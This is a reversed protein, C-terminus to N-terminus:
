LRPQLRVAKAPSGRGPPSSMSPYLWSLGLPAAPGSLPRQPGRLAEIRRLPPPSILVQSAWASLCRTRRRPTAAGSARARRDPSRPGRARAAPRAYPQTHQLKHDSSRAGRPGAPSGSSYATSSSSRAPTVRSCPSAPSGANLPARDVRCRPRPRRLVAAGATTRGRCRARRRPHCSANPLRRPSVSAPRAGQRARRVPSKRRRGPGDPGIRRPRPAPRRTAPDRPRFM